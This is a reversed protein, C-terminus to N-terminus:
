EAKFLVELIAGDNRLVVNLCVIRRVEKALNQRLDLLKQAIGKALELIEQSEQDERPYDIVFIYLDTWPGNQPWKLKQPYSNELRERQWATTTTVVYTLGQILALFPSRDTAAKVEGVIPLRDDRNVLLLDFRDQKPGYSGTENQSYTTRGPCFEYDVYEFELSSRGSSNFRFLNSAVLSVFRKAPDKSQAYRPLSAPNQNRNRQHFAEQRNDYLAFHKASEGFM